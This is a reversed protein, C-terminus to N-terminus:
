TALNREAASVQKAIANVNNARAICATFKLVVMVFIRENIM